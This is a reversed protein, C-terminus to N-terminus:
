IDRIAYTEKGSKIQKYGFDNLGYDSFRLLNSGSKGLIEFTEALYDYLERRATDMYIAQLGTLPTYPKKLESLHYNFLNVSIKLDEIPKIETNNFPELLEIAAKISNNYDAVSVRIQNIFYDIFEDPLLSGILEMNKSEGATLSKGSSNFPVTKSHKYLGFLISFDDPVPIVKEWQKAERFENVPTPFFHELFTKTNDGVKGLCELTKKCPSENFLNRATSNKYKETLEKKYARFNKMAEEDLVYFEKGRLYIDPITHWQDKVVRLKKKKETDKLFEKLKLEYVGKARNSKNWYGKIRRDEENIENIIGNFVTIDKVDIRPIILDKIEEVVLGETM